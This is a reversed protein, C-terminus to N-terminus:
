ETDSRSHSASFQSIGALNSGLAAGALQLATVTELADRTALNSLCHTVQPLVQPVKMTM